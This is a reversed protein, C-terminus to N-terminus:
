LNEDANKTNYKDDNLGLKEAFSKNRIEARKAIESLPIIEQYLNAIVAEVEGISKIPEDPYVWYDCYPVKNYRGSPLSVKDITEGILFGFFQNFKRQSYNAILRAYRQIQDCHTALDVDPAKIEILICKGEEPFLFIDPRRKLYSDKTIGVSKLADDIKTKEKLLKEGNIKIEDLKIDSCGNFHVFEENLIWLDNPIGKSGRKFILDHIIGEKERKIKEGDQKKKIWSQQLELQNNIAKKLLEVVMDRRIVYRALEERNQQPILTFLESVIKEFKERYNDSEIPNLQPIKLQKLEEYTKQIKISQKALYQAQTVFLKKTAKESTDNFNINAVNAIEQPIGYKKALDTIYKNRKEQLNEVDSYIKILGDTIKNELEEWFVYESESFFLPNGKLKEEVEKKSPFTFKDFSQNLNQPDDLISGSICILYHFGGLNNNKGIAHFQFPRIVVDKSCMYVGNEDIEDSALKFRQIAIEHKPEVISWEIKKNVLKSQETNVYIKTEKDPKLINKQDFVFKEKKKNDLFIKIEFTLRYQSVGLWLRLLFRKLIDRKLEDISNQYKMFFELEKEDSIFEKMKVITKVDNNKLETPIEKYVGTKTCSFSLNNIRNNEVFASDVIIENFRHFIQIKGTGKNNLGKTTEALKKFRTMNDTTFGIGNDEISIFDLIVKKEGTLDKDSTFHVSLTIKPEFKENEIKQRQAIADFSNAIAEKIPAFVDKSRRIIDCSNAISIEHNFTKM